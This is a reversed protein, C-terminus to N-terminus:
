HKSIDKIEELFASSIVRSEIETFKAFNERGKSELQMKEKELLFQSLAMKIEDKDNRCYLIGDFDSLLTVAPDTEFPQQCIYLIPNLSAIYHFVKGPIQLNGQNGVLILLDADVISQISEEYSVRNKFNVSLKNSKAAKEFKTSHNGIINLQFQSDVGFEAVANISPVLDRDKHFAAGIHSIQIKANKSKVVNFFDDKSYGYYIYRGAFQYKKQYEELTQETTFIVRDCHSFILKEARKSCLYFWFRFKKDMISWPDGFDAVWPLNYDKHLKFAAMHATNSGSSSIVCDPKWVDFGQKFLKVVKDNWGFFLDPYSLYYMLNKYVWQLNKNKSFLKNLWKQYTHPETRYVLTNDPWGSPALGIKGSKELDHPVIFRWEFEDGSLTTLLQRIRLTQSDEYPTFSTTILLIKM